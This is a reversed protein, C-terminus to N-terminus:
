KIFPVFNSCKREGDVVQFNLYRIPLKSQIVSHSLKCEQCSPCKDNLCVIKMFVKWVM